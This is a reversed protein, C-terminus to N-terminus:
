PAEEEIPPLPLLESLSLGNSALPDADQPMLYLTLADKEANLAALLEVPSVYLIQADEFDPAIAHTLDDFAARGMPRETAQDDPQVTEDDLILDTDASLTQTIPVYAVPQLAIPAALLIVGENAPTNSRGPSATLGSPEGDSVTMQATVSTEPKAQFEPSVYLVRLDEIVAKAFLDGNNDPLTAVVGVRAGPRLLGALGRDRKVRVAVAREDPGLRVGPGLHKPSIPEDQFRAVALTHGVLAAPDSAADPPAQNAPLTRLALDAPTLIAGAGLDRAAVVIDVTHEPEPWLALLILGFTLLGLLLPLFLSKRKSMPSPFHLDPDPNPIPLNPSENLNM